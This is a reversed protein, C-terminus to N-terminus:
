GAVIHIKEYHAESRLFMWTRSSERMDKFRMREAYCSDCRMDRSSLNACSNHESRHLYIESAVYALDYALTKEIGILYPDAGVKYTNNYSRSM